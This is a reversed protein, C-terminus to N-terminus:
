AERLSRANERTRDSVSSVRRLWQRVHCTGRPKHVVLGLAGVGVGVGDEDAAFGIGVGSSSANHGAAARGSSESDARRTGSRRTRLPWGQEITARIESATTTMKGLWGMCHGAAEQFRCELRSTTEFETIFISWQLHCSADLENTVCKDRAPGRAAPLGGGGGGM